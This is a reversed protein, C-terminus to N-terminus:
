PAESPDELAAGIGGDEFDVQEGPTRMLNADMQGADAMWQGPIREIRDTTLGAEVLGSQRTIGPIPQMGFAHDECM